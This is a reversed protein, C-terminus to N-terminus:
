KRVKLMSIVENFAKKKSELCDWGCEEMTAAPSKMSKDCFSIKSKLDKIIISLVDDVMETIDEYDTGLRSGEYNTEVYEIIEDRTNLTSQYTNL